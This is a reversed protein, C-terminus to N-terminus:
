PEESIEESGSKKYSEYCRTLSPAIVQTQVTHKTATLRHPRAEGILLHLCAAHHMVLVNLEAMGDTLACHLAVLSVKFLLLVTCTLM